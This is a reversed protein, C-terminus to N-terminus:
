KKISEGIAETVKESLAILEGKQSLRKRSTKIEINFLPVSDNLIDYSYRLVNMDIYGDTVHKDTQFEGPLIETKDETIFTTVEYDNYASAGIQVYKVHSIMKSENYDTVKLEIRENNEYNYYEFHNDVLNCIKDQLSHDITDEQIEMRNDCINYLSCYGNKWLELTGWLRKEDHFSFMDYEPSVLLGYRDRLGIKQTNPDKIIFIGMYPELPCFREYRFCIYQNYGIALSPLILGLYLMAMVSLAIMGKRQCFFAFCPYVALLLSVILMIVRWTGGFQQAVFFFIMSILLLWNRKSHINYYELLLYLSFLPMTLCAFLCMRPTMARGVLTASVAIIMLKFYTGATKDRLLFKGLVDKWGLNDVLKKRCFAIIYIISPGWLLWTTIARSWWMFAMRNFEMGFILFPYVTLEYLGILHGSVCCGWSFVLPLWAKKEQHYLTFSLTVRAVIALLTVTSSIVTWDRSGTFAIIWLSCMILDLGFIKQKM